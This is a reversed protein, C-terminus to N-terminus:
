QFAVQIRIPTVPLRFWWSPSITIVPPSELPLIQELKQAAEEPKLGRVQNIVEATPITPQIKRSTTIELTFSDGSFSTHLNKKKFTLTDNLPTFNAPLAADLSYVAFTYIDEQAIYYGITSIKMYLTLLHSPTAKEPSFEKDIIEEIEINEDLLIGKSELQKQMKSKVSNLLEKKLSDTLSLRDYATPMPVIQDAGHRTPYPNIVKVKTNIVGEAAVISGTPVNGESGSEQARIPLLVTSETGGELKGGETVTFFVPPLSDTRVITGAPIEILTDTLNTFQVYGIAPYQPITTSGTAPQTQKGEVTMRIEQLAISGPHSPQNSDINGSIQITMEQTQTQTDLKITASPVVVAAIILVALVGITFVALQMLPHLRKNKTDPREPTLSVPMIGAEDAQNQEEQLRKYAAVRREKESRFRRPIRWKNNQAQYITKFVPIGAHLAQFRVEADKTVLALEAGQANSERKLLFLDLKRSLLQGRQPYVLIIRQSRAWRIKDRASVIDDHPELHIIQTKM